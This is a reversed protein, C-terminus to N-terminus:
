INFIRAILDFLYNGVIFAAIAVLIYLFKHNHFFENKM